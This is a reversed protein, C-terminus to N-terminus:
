FMGYNSIYVGRQKWNNEHEVKTPKLWLNNLILM